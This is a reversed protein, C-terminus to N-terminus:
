RGGQRLSKGSEKVTGRRFRVSSHGVRVSGADYSARCPAGVMTTISAGHRVKRGLVSRGTVIVIPLLLNVLTSLNDVSM